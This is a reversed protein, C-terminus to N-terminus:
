NSKTTKSKAPKPSENEIVRSCGGIKDSISCGGIELAGVQNFLDVRGDEPKSRAILERDGDPSHYLYTEM